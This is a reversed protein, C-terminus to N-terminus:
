EPWHPDGYTRSTDVPGLPLLPHHSCHARRLCCGLGGLAVARGRRAQRRNRMEGNRLAHRPALCGAGLNRPLRMAFPLRRGDTEVRDLQELLLRYRSHLLEHRDQVPPHQDRREREVAPRCVDHGGIERARRARPQVHLQATVGVERVKPDEGSRVPTDHEIRVVEVLRQRTRELPVDLPEDGAKRHRASLAAKVIAPPLRDVEPYAPGVALRDGSEGRHRRHGRTSARRCPHGRRANDESNVPFATLRASRVRAFARM